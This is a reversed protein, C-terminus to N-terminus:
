VILGVEKLTTEELDSAPVWEVVLKRRHAVSAHLLAQM